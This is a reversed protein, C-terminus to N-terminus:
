YRRDRSRGGLRRLRFRLHYWGIDRGIIGGSIEVEVSGTNTYNYFRSREDGKGAGFLYCTLPHEVIQKLTRPVGITGGTMKVISKCKVDTIENGGYVNTLIHGGSIRVEADGEM